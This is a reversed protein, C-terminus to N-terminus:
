KAEPVAGAPVRERRERREGFRLSDRFRGIPIEVLYWSAVAVAVTITSYTVFKGILNSVLFELHLPELLYPKAVYPVFNHYLYLGYSIKGLFLFPKWELFAGLRGTFGDTAKNFAWCFCMGELTRSFIAFRGAMEFTMLVADLLFLSGGVWLCFSMVKAIAEPRSKRYMKLYALVGGMALLDINGLAHVFPLIENTGSEMCYLRYLPAVGMAAVLVAPLWRKPTLLIVLPWLLYFQEEVALSWFHTVSGLEWGHDSLYLNSLYSAHWGISDRVPPIDLLYGIALTLYFIPFIRLSRRVYFEKFATGRSVIGAEYDKRGKLLLGTILYGSMVFFADLATSGLYIDHGFITPKPLHTSVFHVYFVSFVGFTRIADLQKM